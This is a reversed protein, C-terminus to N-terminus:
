FSLYLHDNTHRCFMQSSHTSSVSGELPTRKWNEELVVPPRPFKLESCSEPPCRVSIERTSKIETIQFCAANLCVRTAQLCRRNTSKCLRQKKVLDISREIDAILFSKSLQQLHRTQKICRRFQTESDTCRHIDLSKCRACDLKEYLM